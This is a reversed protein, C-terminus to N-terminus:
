RPAIPAARDAPGAVANAEQELVVRALWFRLFRGFSYRLYLAAGTVCLAIGVGTAVLADGRELANTSGVSIFYQAAAVVTGVLLLLIGLRLLLQERRGAPSSPAMSALETRFQDLRDTSQSATM